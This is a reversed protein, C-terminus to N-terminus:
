LEHFGEMFRDFGATQMCAFYADFSVREGIASVFHNCGERDGKWRILYFAPKREPFSAVSVSTDSDSTFSGSLITEGTMLDTVTYSVSIKERTDNVAFLSLKGDKPEDVMMSFPAQSRKIYSYALKKTGYHDVIADSIQPWGDILNWWLIGTRRWKSIRFREIFYKKAEAQSIQSELAYRSLDTPVEGFIREVQKTMLPIRYSYSTGWVPEMCAAHTLWYRDKCVSLDGYANLHDTPIFKALSSPSPCGHYGTESAFHAPATSYYKGKFFDRPGWLHAESSKGKERFVVEDIFPSSPLFPRAFDHDRIVEPLVERTLRNANPDVRNVTKGNVKLAYSLQFEDCENDGSWLALSAHNRYTRVIETAEERIMRCLREDNPYVGCALAFDQWILIGHEDCFDYLAENPYINGGWCRVMNCGLDELMEM